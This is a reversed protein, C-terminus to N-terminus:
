FPLETEVQTFGSPASPEDTMTASADSRPKRPSMKPVSGARVDDVVEFRGIATYQHGNFECDQMSFGIARGILGKENWDWHYGPNSAEIRWIADGFRKKDSDPYMAKTNAQNPIRLRYVGKYKIEFKGGAEQDDKLRRSFYGAHEGETVDVAIALTQDPEAGEIKVSTIKGVYAGAPLQGFSGSGSKKSEFGDFAKM